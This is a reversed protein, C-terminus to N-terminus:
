KKYFSNYMETYLEPTEKQIKALAKSDFMEFDRITWNARENQLVLHNSVTNMIKAAETNGIKSLTYKVTDFDIKALNVYKDKEEDKIKGASVFSNVMETVELLKAEEKDKEIQSLKASLSEKETKEAELTQTLNKVQDQLEAITTVVAEENVEEDLGLQNKVKIMKTNPKQILSNYCVAMAYLSSTDVTPKKKTTQVEDVLGYTLAEQATFYTENDMVESVREPTFHTSNSLITVLTNKVLALVEDDASGSPNHLMVTGYDKITVHDGALLIVGAISAALGDCFTHVPVSSNQIASVISYGQIVSGGFSNVRVNIQSCKDQLFEIEAAFEAGNIGACAEGNSNTYEGIGDYLLITAIGEESINQVYKFGKM